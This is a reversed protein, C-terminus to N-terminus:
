ASIIIFHKQQVDVMEKRADSGIGLEHRASEAALCEDDLEVGGDQQGGGGVALDVHHGM